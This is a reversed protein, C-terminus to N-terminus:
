PTDDRIGLAYWLRGDKMYALHTRDKDCVVSPWAGGEADVTQTSWRGAADGHMARKALKLRGDGYAVCLESRWNFEASPSTNRTLGTAVAEKVVPSAFPKLWAKLEGTEGDWYVVCIDGEGHGALSANQGASGAEDIVGDTWEDNFVEALKLQRRGVGENTELEDFYAIRLGEGNSFALSNFLGTTRLPLDDLVKVHGRWTGDIKTAYCLAQTSFTDRFAIHPTDRMSEDHKGPHLQMSVDMVSQPFLGGSTPVHERNWSGDAKVMYGLHGSSSDRYAIHPCGLSDMGFSVRNAEPPSVAGTDEVTWGASRKSALMINGVPRHARYAIHPIGDRDLALCINGVLGGVDDVMDFTFNEVM